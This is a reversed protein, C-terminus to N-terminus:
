WFKLKKIAKAAKLQQLLERGEPSALLQVVVGGGPVVSNVAMMTAQMAMDNAAGKPNLLAKTALNFGPPMLQQAPPQTLMDDGVRGGGMGLARSPDELRGDMRNVVVHMTRPASRYVHVRAPLGHARLELARYLALDECDGSGVRATTEPSQWVEGPDSKYRIGSRYLIPLSRNPKLGDLIVNLLQEILRPSVNELTIKM